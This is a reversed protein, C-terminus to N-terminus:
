DQAGRVLLAAFFGDQGGDPGEGPLLRLLGSATVARADLGLPTGDFPSLAFDPHRALFDAVQGEGEEPELSCVCYVLRGGPAVARAATDLLRSQTEALRAIDQARAGWLVEPHRRFTGTATCPADLLVLDFPQDTEFKAADIVQTTASLRARALNDELREVRKASRDLATVEAGAAALQLTKGGPAACMDLARQGRVPGALRVPLASAYDQVWWLGDEYGPFERLEGRRETRITGSPLLVGEVAEAIAAGEADDRPTLDVPAQALLAKLAADTRERGYAQRWRATLFDPALREAPVTDILASAGDRDLGRLVANVLGKFGFLGRDEELLALSTSVAAFAPALGFLIQVAGLRLIARVKDPPAKQLRKDLLHDIAGLGRLLSSALAAEVIDLAARRADLGPTRAAPSSAPSRAPRPKKVNKV